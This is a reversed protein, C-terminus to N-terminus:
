VRIGGHVSIKDRMYAAVSANVQKCLEDRNINKSKLDLAGIAIYIKSYLDAEFAFSMKLGHDGFIKMLRLLDFINIKNEGDILAKYCRTQIKFCTLPMPVYGPVSTENKNYANIYFSSHDLLVNVAGAYGRFVAEALAEEYVSALQSDKFSPNNLANLLLTVVNSRNELVAPRYCVCTMEGMKYQPIFTSNYPNAQAALEPFLVSMKSLLEVLNLPIYMCGEESSPPQVSTHVDETYEKKFLEPSLHTHGLALM